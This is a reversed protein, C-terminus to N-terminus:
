NLLPIFLFYSPLPTDYNLICFNPLMSILVSLEQCSKPSTSVALPSSYLQPVRTFINAAYTIFVVSSSNYLFLNNNFCLQVKFLANLFKYSLSKGFCLSIEALSGCGTGTAAGQWQACVGSGELLSVPVLLKLQMTHDMDIGIFQHGRKMHVLFVHWTNQSKKVRKIMAIVRIM